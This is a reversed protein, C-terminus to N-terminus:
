KFMEKVKAEDVGWAKAMAAFMRDDRHTKTSKAVAAFGEAVTETIFEYGILAWLMKVLVAGVPALFPLM